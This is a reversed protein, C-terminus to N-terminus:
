EKTAVIAVGTGGVLSSSVRQYRSEGSLPQILLLAM